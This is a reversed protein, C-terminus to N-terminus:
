LVTGARESPVSLSSICVKRAWYPYQNQLEWKFNTPTDSPFSNGSPNLGNVYLIHARHGEPM